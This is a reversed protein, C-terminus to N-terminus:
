RRKLVAYAFNQVSGWPTAHHEAAESVLAFEDGLRAALTAPSYRQVPLGSCREPGDLAFCSMVIVSGASTATKLATLYANQDVTATLFHFVARDHWLRWVREPRWSTIDAAIWKVKSAEPGLREQSRRLAAASVDLVTLDSYGAALLEDILHSAGGGVDLIPSAHDPLMSKISALSREPRPQYWSVETEAKTSYVQDWHERTTPM